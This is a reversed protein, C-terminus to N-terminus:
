DHPGITFCIQGLIKRGECLGRDVGEGVDDLSHETSGLLVTQPSIPVSRSPGTSTVSEVNIVLYIAFDRRAIM